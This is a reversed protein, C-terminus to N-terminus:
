EKPATTAAPRATRPDDAATIAVVITGQGSAMPSAVLIRVEANTGATATFRATAVGDDDAQVTIATLDNEFAGRDLSTFTVPAQPPVRVSLPVTSLAAVLRHDAGILRIPPVGVGADAPAMARGPEIVDLYAAPSARYAALDFATPRAQLSLREPHADGEIAERV